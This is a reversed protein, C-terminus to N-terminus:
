GSNGLIFSYSVLSSQDGVHQVTVNTANLWILTVTLVWYDWRHNSLIPSSHQHRWEDSRQMSSIETSRSDAPHSTFRFPQLTTPTSQLRIADCEPRDDLLQEIPFFEREQEHSFESGTLAKQAGKVTAGARLPPLM